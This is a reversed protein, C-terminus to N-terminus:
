SEVILHYVLTKSKRKNEMDARLYDLMAVPGGGLNLEIIKWSKIQNEMIVDGNLELINMSKGRQLQPVAQPLSLKRTTQDAPLGELSAVRAAIGLGGPPPPPPPQSFSHTVLGSPRARPAGSIPGQLPLYIPTYNGGNRMSSLCQLIPPLDM